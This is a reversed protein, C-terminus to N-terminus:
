TGYERGAFSCTSRSWSISCCQLVNAVVILHLYSHAHFGVLDEMVNGAEYVIRSAAVTSRDVDTTMSSRTRSCLIWVASSPVAVICHALM